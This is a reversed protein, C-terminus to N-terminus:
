DRVTLEQLLSSGMVTRYEARNGSAEVLKSVTSEAWERFEKGRQESEAGTELREMTTILYLDPEGDRNHVNVLIKYDKIWGKSKAFEQYGKWENALWTAYKLEGGDALDIAAVEWYDGAVLPWEDASASMNTVFLISIAAGLLKAIRTM